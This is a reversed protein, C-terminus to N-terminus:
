AAAEAAPPESLGLLDFTPRELIGEIVAEPVQPLRYRRHLPQGRASRRDLRRAARVALRHRVAAQGAVGYEVASLLANYLQWPRPHLASVDAYVNPHKRVVVLADDIWPHGMHAIVIKLDPFRIAVQDIQLPLAYRLEATRVFTTGQHWLIPLGLDEAAECVALAAPSLPDFGQYTPALKLGRLGMEVGRQLLPVADIDNADVSAFGVLKEPHQAVYDAVYDNPVDFGIRPAAFALVIAKDVPAVAEWHEELSRAPNAQPGWARVMDDIFAGSFHRREGVHTHCDIMPRTGRRRGARRSRRRPHRERRRRARPRRRPGARLGAQAAPRARARGAAAADAARRQRLDRARRLAGEDDRDRRRHRLRPHVAGARDLRGAPRGRRRRRQVRAWATAFSEPLVAPAIVMAGDVGAALFQSLIPDDGALVTLGAERWVPIKGLDHDTLKASNLHELERSWDVVWEAQLPTKTTFPNDYLVLEIDIAADIRSLHALIGDPSNAFYFPSCCLVGAAGHEQAHRALEAGATASTHSVGVVVTKDAPTMALAEAVIQARQADPLSPAEGTSGMLTFGDVWPLM